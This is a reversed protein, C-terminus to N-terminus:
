YNSYLERESEKIIYFLKKAEEKKGENNLKKCLEKQKEIKRLQNDNEKLFDEHKRHANKVSINVRKELVSDLYWKAM